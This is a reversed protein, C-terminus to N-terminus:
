ATARAPLAAVRARGPESDGRVGRATCRPKATRGEVRTSSAKLHSPRASLTYVVCSEYASRSRTTRWCVFLCYPPTASLSPPPPGHLLPLLLLLIPPPPPLLHQLPVVLISSPLLLLLWRLSSPTAGDVVSHTRLLTPPPPAAPRPM